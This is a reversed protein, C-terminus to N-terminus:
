KAQFLDWPFADLLKARDYLPLDEGGMKLAEAVSKAPKFEKRGTGLYYDAYKFLSENDTMRLLRSPIGYAEAIIIGHLSSSIVFKSEVIKQVIVDWPETPYVINANKPLLHMESIHPIVLFERISEKKFEPFLLPFLLAPDGYVEPVNVGLNQLFLRTLPGRVARVDLNKFSYDRPYPHKGNIGSGWVIDSDKAFHLISGIALLKHKENVRAKKIAHGTIRELLVVSLTDGFNTVNFKGDDPEWWYLPVNSQVACCLFCTVIGYIFLRM